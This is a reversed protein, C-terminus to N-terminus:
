IREIDVTCLGGKTVPRREVHLMDVLKDDEMVGAKVLADLLPKVFNDIDRRRKDRFAFTLTVVVPNTFLASNVPFMGSHDVLVAQRVHEQYVKGKPKVYVQVFPKKGGPQVVRHGWYDNISPPIGLTLNM